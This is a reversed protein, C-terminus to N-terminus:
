LLAATLGKPDWRVQHGVLPQNSTYSYTLGTVNHTSALFLSSSLSSISSWLQEGDQTSLGIYIIVDM